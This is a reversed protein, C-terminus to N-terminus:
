AESITVQIDSPRNWGELPRWNLVNLIVTEAEVLRKSDVGAVRSVEPAKRVATQNEDFKTAIWLCAALNVRLSDPAIRGPEFKILSRKLLHFALSCTDEGSLCLERHWNALVRQLRATAQVGLLNNKNHIVLESDKISSTSEEGVQLLNSTLM